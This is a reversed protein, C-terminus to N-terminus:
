LIKFKQLISELGRKEKNPRTDEKIQQSTLHEKSIQQRSCTEKKEREKKKSITTSFIHVKNM